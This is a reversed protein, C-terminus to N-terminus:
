VENLVVEDTGEKAAQFRWEIKWQVVPEQAPAPEKVAQNSTEATGEACDNTSTTAVPAASAEEPATPEANAENPNAQMM